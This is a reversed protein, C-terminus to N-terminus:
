SSSSDVMAPAYHSEFLEQASPNEPVGFLTDSVTSGLVTGPCRLGGVDAGAAQEGRRM